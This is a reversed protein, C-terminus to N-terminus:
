TKDPQKKSPFKIGPIKFLNRNLRELWVKAAKKRQEQQPTLPTPPTLSKM